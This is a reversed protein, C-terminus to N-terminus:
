PETLKPPDGEPVPPVPLMEYLQDGEVENFAVVIDLGTEDARLETLYVSVIFSLKPHLSVLLTNRVTFGFSVAM